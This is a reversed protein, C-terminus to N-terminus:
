LEVSFSHWRYRIRTERQAQALRRRDTGYPVEDVSPSFRDFIKM